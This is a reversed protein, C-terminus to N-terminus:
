VGKTLSWEIANLTAKELPDGVLTGDDLQALAQCTAMVRVTELPADSAIVM